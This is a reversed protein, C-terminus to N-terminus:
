NAFAAPVWHHEALAMTQFRGMDPNRLFGEAQPGWMSINASLIRLQQGPSVGPALKGGVAARGADGFAKVLEAQATDSGDCEIVNTKRRKAASM